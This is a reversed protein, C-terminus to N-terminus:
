FHGVIVKHCLGRLIAFKRIDQYHSTKLEWDFRKKLFTEMWRWVLAHVKGNCNSEGYSPIGLIMNLTVAILISLDGTDTVAAIVSRIVHKFARVIMEHICLSQM